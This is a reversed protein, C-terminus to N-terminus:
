MGGIAVLITQKYSCYAEYLVARCLSMDLILGNTRGNGYDYLLIKMLKKQLRINLVSLRIKKGGVHCWDTRDPILNSNTEIYGTFQFMSYLLLNNIIETFFSNHGPM